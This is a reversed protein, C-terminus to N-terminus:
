TVWGNHLVSVYIQIQIRRRKLSGEKVKLFSTTSGCCNVCVETLLSYAKISLIYHSCMNNVELIIDNKKSLAESLKSSKWHQGDMKDFVLMYKSKFEKGIDGM